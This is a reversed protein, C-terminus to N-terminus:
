LYRNQQAVRRALTKYTVLLSLRNLYPMQLGTIEWASTAVQQVAASTALSSGVLVLLAVWIGFAEAIDALLDHYSAFFAYKAALADVAYFLCSLNEGLYGLTSRLLDLHLNSHM